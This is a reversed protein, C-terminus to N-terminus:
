KLFGLLIYMPQDFDNLAVLQIDDVVVDVLNTPQDTSHPDLAIHVLLELFLCKQSSPCLRKKFSACDTFISVVETKPIYLYFSEGSPCPLSSSSQCKESSPSSLLPLQIYFHLRLLISPFVEIELCCIWICAILSLHLKRDPPTDFILIVRRWVRRLSSVARCWIFCWADVYYQMTAQFHCLLHRSTRSWCTWWGCGPQKSLRANQAHCLQRCWLSGQQKSCTWWPPPNENNTKTKKNTKNTNKTATKIKNTQNHNNAPKTGQHCRLKPRNSQTSTWARKQRPFMCSKACNTWHCLCQTVVQRSGLLRLVSFFSMVPPMPPTSQPGMPQMSSHTWNQIPALRSVRWLHLGPSHRTLFRLLPQQLSVSPMLVTNVVHASTGMWSHPPDITSSWSLESFLNARTRRWSHM